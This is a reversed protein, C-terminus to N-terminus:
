FPLEKKIRGVLAEIPIDDTSVEIDAYRRYLPDRAEKLDLITQGKGMAIGRTEINGLREKLTKYSTDLFVAIGDEKLKAMSKESYVVSGGTAIVTSSCNLSLVAKEELKLFADIGRNDIIDQLLKGSTEQIIIDTDIFSYGLTKALIIGMTSKGAGPMGILVINKETM